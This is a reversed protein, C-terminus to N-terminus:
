GDRTVTLPLIRCKVENFLPDPERDVPQQSVEIEEMM